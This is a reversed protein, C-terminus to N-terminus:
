EIKKCALFYNTNISTTFIFKNKLICYELGKFEIPLLGAQRVIAALESPRIFYEYKHTGKPIFNFLYEAAIISKIYAIPNRNITSFFVMGNKKILAAAANIINEPHPVHELVELCTVFDFASPREQALCEASIYQYNINFKSLLAHKKAIKIANHSLDIGTVNGGLKTMAETLLGGGCGIDCINKQNIHTHQNIWNIRLPNIQHLIRFTGKEDWWDQKEKNFKEIEISDINSM